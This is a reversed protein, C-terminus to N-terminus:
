RGFHHQTLYPELCRVHRIATCRGGQGGQETALNLEHEIGAWAQGM